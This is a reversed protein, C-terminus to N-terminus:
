RAGRLWTNLGVGRSKMYYLLFAAALGMLLWEHPEPVGSLPGQVPPTTDGVAEYEREFRDDMQELRELMQKQNLNVLVIMSSYPTVLGYEQALSHLSDLTDLDKLSGRQRQMEALIMRRAALAEFGTEPSAPASDGGALSAAPLVTWLYGDLLDTAGDPDALAVGLRLLATDLDGVVGGGSAQIAELTGDDYGLPIASGLHVMWVPASPVPLTYSAPGLEYASGDTLVIIAQYERGPSDDSPGNLRSFQELIEAPNQGGFYLLSSPPLDVLPVISAEEGRFESSTLYVDSGPGAVQALRALAAEVEQSYAEMSRSRDLVVALRLGEPLPPLAAQALPVALVRGGGPLDVQHARPTVEASAPLSIPMWGEDRYELDAGNLTRQTRSDWFINRKQALQPLPWAQDTALAQYTFWLYMPPAEEVSSLGSAPDWSVVMPPIPFARLRYQRPGIQELLAPDLQRRVENRYVTQAAGRPAVQYEFRQSRDPTVGLWVGTLVASEPLNFYYIVEQRDATQNQYVEFIEVEAWDGHEILNIEQQLLYVERDDVAQWAAEIQNFSWTSRVAQVITEREAEIITQDFFAQYLRAAERPEVQLAQNDWHGPLVPSNAPKYLLPSAVAEYLRQVAFAQVPRMGFTSQYISSIHSVEGEASLYRFPALYANLLGSRIARERNLLAAAQEPSAPPKQLAAFAEGQPQRGTAIFLVVVLLVTGLSLGAPRLWGFRNALTRLSTLWFARLSLLPVMVPTFVFLTATYILLIFGLLSFPIWLLNGSFMYGLTSALSRWAAPLDSLIGWLWRLVEAALPVAYFAIWVSAYLATLLMLTLGVLRLWALRRSRQELGPDLLYWLFAAMGLSAIAFVVLVGPTMQRILFFRVVLMLMLPGEVVFGLALQRGPSRRLVTLGLAIAGFPVLSLVLAYALYPLPIMGTRVGMIMEPVIRPAFGLTMFAVFILNWSWFLGEAARQWFTFTQPDSRAQATTQTQAQATM